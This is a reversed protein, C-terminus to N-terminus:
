VDGGDSVFITRLKNMNAVFEEKDTGDYNSIVKISNPIDIINNAIESNIKDYADWKRMVEKYWSPFAPVEWYCDKDERSRRYVGIYDVKGTVRNYVYGVPPLNCQLGQIDVVSGGEIPRYM